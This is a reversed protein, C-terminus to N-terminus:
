SEGLSRAGLQQDAPSRYRVSISAPPRQEKIFDIQGCKPGVQAQGIQPQPQSALHLDPGLEQLLICNLFM